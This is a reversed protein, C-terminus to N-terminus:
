AAELDIQKPIALTTTELTIEHALEDVGSIDRLEFQISTSNQALMQEVSLGSGASYGSMLSNQTEGPNLVKLNRIVFLDSSLDSSDIPVPEKQSSYDAYSVEGTAAARGIACAITVSGRLSGGKGLSISYAVVKGVAEGGPLRDNTICVSDACTINLLSEARCGVTIEVARSAKALRAEARKVAHAAAAQGRASHFFSTKTHHLAGTGIVDQLRISITETGGTDSTIEQTDAAVSAKLTERRKQKYEGLVNLEPDRFWVRPVTVPYEGAADVEPDHSPYKEASVWAQASIQPRIFIFGPDPDIELQSGVVTYGSRGGIATGPAPWRSLFDEPTLTNIKKSPFANRIANGLWAIGWSHQTWQAEIELEVAALPPDSVEIEPDGFGSTVDTIPADLIDSLSITGTARHWHVLAHRGALIEAPDDERSEAVFLSDYYPAVKLAALFAAQEDAWGPKQALARMTIKEGSIGTPVGVIRGWFLLTPVGDVACSIMIYKERAAALLGARPNEIVLEATAFEGESESLRFAFVSEDNRAHVAPNWSETDSVWAFFMQGIKM